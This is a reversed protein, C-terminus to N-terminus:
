TYDSYNLQYRESEKAKLSRDLEETDRGIAIGVAKSTERKEKYREEAGQM